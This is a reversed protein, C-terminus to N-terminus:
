ARSTRISKQVWGWQRASVVQVKQIIIFFMSTEVWACLVTSDYYASSQVLEFFQAVSVLQSCCLNRCPLNIEQTVEVMSSMLHQFRFFSKRTALWTQLTDTFRFERFFYNTFRTLVSVSTCVSVLRWKVSTNTFHLYSSNM